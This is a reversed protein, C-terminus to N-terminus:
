LKVDILRAEQLLENKDKNKFYLSVITQRMQEDSIEEQPTYETIEETNNSNLYGLIFYGAVCLIVLIILISIFMKVRKSKM